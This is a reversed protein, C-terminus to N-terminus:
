GLFFGSCNFFECGDIIWSTISNGMVDIGKSGKATGVSEMPSTLGCVTRISFGSVNAQPM